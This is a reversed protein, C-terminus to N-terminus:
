QSSYSRRCLWKLWHRPVSRAFKPGGRIPARTGAVSLFRERLNGTPRAAAVVALGRIRRATDDTSSSSGFFRRFSLGPWVPCNTVTVFHPMPFRIPRFPSNDAAASFRRGEPRSAGASGACGPNSEGRGARQHNTGVRLQCLPSPPTGPMRAPADNLSTIIGVHCSM